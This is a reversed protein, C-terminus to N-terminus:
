SAPPTTPQQAPPTTPQQAPADGPWAGYMYNTDVNGTIGPVSGKESYQWAVMGTWPAASPPNQKDCSQYNALWLPYKTLNTCDIKKLMNSYSYFWPTKGTKEAVVSMFKEAWQGLKEPSLKNATEFDLVPFENASLTGVQTLFNNAEVTADANMDTGNPRAFHYLGCKLGRDSLSKRYGAFRDDVFDGGETVKIIAGKAGTNKYADWDIDNQHHSVDVFDPKTAAIQDETPMDDTYEVGPHNIGHHIRPTPLNSAVQTIM